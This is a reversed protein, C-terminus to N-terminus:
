IEKVSKRGYLKGFFTQCTPKLNNFQEELCTNFKEQGERPHSCGLVEIEAFCGRSKSLREDSPKTEFGKQHEMTANASLTIIMMLVFLIVKM